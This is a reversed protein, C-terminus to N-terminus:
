CVSWHFSFHLETLQMWVDCHLKESRKKETKIQLYKRKWQLGWHAGLHWKASEFLLTNGFLLMFLFNSSQSTFACTVYFNRLVSGKLKERFINGKESYGEIREWIDSQLNWSFLTLLCSCSCFPPVRHSSHVPWISTEWFAEKWNKDSSM